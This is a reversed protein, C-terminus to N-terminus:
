FKASLFQEATIIRINNFLVLDLLGKDGTIIFGCRGEIAAEIVRNDGEDKLINCEQSPYVLEFSEKILEEVLQIRNPTFQFKKILIETLEAILVQSTVARIKFDKVLKLIKEPNGGFVLASVLINTDLVVKPPNAAM